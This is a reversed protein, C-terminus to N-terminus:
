EDDTDAIPTVITDDVIVDDPNPNEIAPGAVPVLVIEVDPALMVVAECLMRNPEEALPVSIKSTDVTTEDVEEPLIKNLPKDVTVIVIVPPDDSVDGVAFITAAEAAPEITSITSPPVNFCVPEPLKVVFAFKKDPVTVPVVVTVKM